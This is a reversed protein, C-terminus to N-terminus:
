STQTASVPKLRIQNFVGFVPKRMILSLNDHLKVEEKDSCYCTHLTISVHNESQHIGRPRPMNLGAM